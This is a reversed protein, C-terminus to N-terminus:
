PTATLPGGADRWAMMGGEVNVADFGAALLM